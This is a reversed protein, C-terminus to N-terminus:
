FNYLQVKLQRFHVNIFKHIDRQSGIKELRKSIGKIVSEEVGEGELLNLNQIENQASNINDKISMGIESKNFTFNDHFDFDRGKFIKIQFDDLEFKLSLVTFPDDKRREHLSGNGKEVM